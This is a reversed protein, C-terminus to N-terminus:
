YRDLFLSIYDFQNDHLCHIVTQQQTYLHHFDFILVEGTRYGAVPYQGNWQAISPKAYRGFLQSVVKGTIIDKIRPPEDIFELHFGEM